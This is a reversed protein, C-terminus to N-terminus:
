HQIIIITTAMPQRAILMTHLIACSKVERVIAFVAVLLLLLLLLWLSLLIDDLLSWYSTIDGSVGLLLTCYALLLAKGWRVLLCCCFSACWSRWWLLQENAWDWLMLSARVLKYVRNKDTSFSSLTQQRSHFVCHM